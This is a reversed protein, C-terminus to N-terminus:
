IVNAMASAEVKTGSTTTLTNSRSSSELYATIDASANGSNVGTYGPLEYTSSTGGPQEFTVAAGDTTEIINGTITTTLSSTGNATFVIGKAGAEAAYIESDTINLTAAGDTGQWVIGSANTPLDDVIVSDFTITGTPNILQIPNGVYGAGGDEFSVNLLMVNGTGGRIDVGNGEFDRITGNRLEFVGDHGNLFIADGDGDNDPIGDSDTDTQPVTEAADDISVDEFIVAADSNDVRIGYGGVSNPNEIDANSFTITGDANAISIGTTNRDEVRVDGFDITSGAGTQEIRISEQAANTVYIGENSAPMDISLNAGSAASIFIGNTTADDIRIGEGNSNLTSGGQLDALYIGAGGSSDTSAMEGFTANLTGNTLDLIRGDRPSHFDGIDVDDITLTGFDTGSIGAGGVTDGIIVGYVANNAGVTIGNGSSNTITPENFEGTSPFTYNDVPATIGALAAFNGTAGGGILTQGDQLTIGGTYNGLKLYIIDNTKAAGSGDNISAFDALTTFPADQSGDSPLVSNDYNEDIFWVIDDVTIDVQGTVTGFGNEIAYYFTDSGTFGTVPTFDFSGDERLLVTNGESTLITNSGNAETGDADLLTSGFGVLSIQDGADNALVGSNFLGDSDPDASGDADVTITMNGIFEYSDTTAVPRDGVALTVTATSAPAISNDIQYVFTDEGTFTASPPTYDFSGDNRVTLEGGNETAGLIGVTTDATSAGFLTLSAIPFGITDNALLDTTGDPVNLITDLDTHYTDGPSSTSAVIDDVAVPTQRVQITVTGVDSGQSNEIQYDFTYDGIVTPNTLSFSGDDNVQLTGGALNVSDTAANDTVTGGLDGGGFNAIAGADPSGLDDNDLLDDLDSTNRILDENVEVFYSDASPVPPAQVVVNVSITDTANSFPSISGVTSADVGVDGSALEGTTADWMTDWAHFTMTLTQASETGDPLFRIQANTDLVVANNSAVIGVTSFDTWTTGSDTSFQWTGNTDDVSVVAIGEPDGDADTIPDGVSSTAIIDAVTKSPPTITDDYQVDDLAMTASSTLVPADNVPVVTITSTATNSNVDGDNVTLEITRDGAVPNESTNEFSISELVTEYDTMAASGNFTLTAGDASVDFTLGTVGTANASTNSTVATGNFLFRDDTEIDTLSVTASELDTDDFDLIGANTDLIAVASGNETFSTSFNRDTDVASAVSNLDLISADNVPTVTITSTATNSDLAGDNVTLEITRDGAVPNESTNEFSISELVTEYDAMTASGSFTLVTGDASVDFTVGSVGTANGTTGGTVVTGDVRLQDSVEANTLTITAAAMNNDDVDGILSDTDAIAVASSNEIFITSFADGAESGDLDLTPVDNVANVTITSTATNSDIDGDNVTIEITRDGAVPNQSTNEFTIQNLM